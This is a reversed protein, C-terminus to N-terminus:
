HIVENSDVESDELADLRTEQYLYLIKTVFDRQTFLYSPILVDLLTYEYAKM